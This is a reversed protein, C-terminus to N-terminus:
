NWPQVGPKVQFLVDRVQWQMPKEATSPAVGVVGRGVDLKAFLQMFDQSWDGGRSGRLQAKEMMDLSALQLADLSIPFPSAFVKLRDVAERRDHTAASRVEPAAQFGFYYSVSENPPITYQEAGEPFAQEVSFEAGCNLVVCNLPQNTHNKFTVSLLSKEEVEYMEYEKKKKLHAAPHWTEIGVPMPDLTPKVATISILPPSTKQGVVPDSLARTMAFRALHELRRILAVIDKKSDTARLPILATNLAPTFTGWRDSIEFRGNKVFVSFDPDSPDNDEKLNLWTRTEKEHHQQWEKKLDSLMYKDAEAVCFRVSSRKALPLKMLVASCGESIDDIKVEVGTVFAAYSKDFDPNVVCVRGLVADDTVGLGLDHGFKLIAYESDKEVGQMKGGSLVVYQDKLAKRSDLAVRSVTLAYVRSRVASSFFFRNRDGFMEPTQNYGNAQVRGRIREFLADSSIELPGNRLSHLMWYTFLGQRGHEAAKQKDLCAAMVVFGRLSTFFDPQSTWFTIREMMEKDPIDSKPNSKYVGSVGRFRVPDTGDEGRLAGGSHCCDLSATVILGKEAMEQMLIALELDRLYRGGYLIDSPVLAEDKDSHSPDIKRADPFV